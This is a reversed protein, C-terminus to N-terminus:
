RDFRISDLADKILLLQNRITRLRDIVEIRKSVNNRNRNIEARAAEIKMGKEKVLYYVLRVNEIDKPTYYRTNGDSRKPRIINFEHEWYRLTSLPIHLLEAVEGIKYYKKNLPDNPMENHKEQLILATPSCICISKLCILNIDYFLLHFVGAEENQKSRYVLSSSAVQLKPLKWEVLQAIVAIDSEGSTTLM